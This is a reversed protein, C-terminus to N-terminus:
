HRTDGAPARGGARRRAGSDRPGRGRWRERAWRGAAGCLALAVVTGVAIALGRPYDLPLVSPNATPRPRLLLPLAILILSGAVIFPRRLHRRPRTAALAGLAIVTPALLADHIIVSGALWGLVAPRGSIHPDTLLLTAGFAMGALGLAGLGYRLLTAPRLAPPRKM